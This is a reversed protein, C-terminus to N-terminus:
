AFQLGEYKREPVFLALQIIARLDLPQGTALQAYLDRVYVIGLVNDLTGQCVPFRTRASELITQHIQDVPDDIDFRAIDIRPTMLASLRRDGLRFVREVLDHEAEEFIGAQRGQELLQTIEKETVPPDTTPLVRLLRLAAKTSISLFAILPSALKSLSRM